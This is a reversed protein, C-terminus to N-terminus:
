AVKFVANKTGRLHYLVEDSPGGPGSRRRDPTWGTWLVGGGSPVELGLAQTVTGLEKVLAMGIDSDREGKLGATVLAQDAEAERPGLWELVSGLARGLADALRTRQTADGAALTRLWGQGHHEHYREEQLVKATCSKIPLFTGGGLAQVVRTVAADVVVTMAVVATWDPLADDLYRPTAFADAPRTELLADPDDGWHAKLIGHLLRAHGLEGQALSCHAVASELTPAGFTWEGYHYGLLLKTDACAVLLERLASPPHGV